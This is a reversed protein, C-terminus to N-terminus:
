KVDKDTEDETRDHFKIEETAHVAEDNRNKM